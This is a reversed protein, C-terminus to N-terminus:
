FISRIFPLVAFRILRSELIRTVAKGQRDMDYGAIRGLIGAEHSVKLAKELEENKMNRFIRTALRMSRFDRGYSKKWKRQFTDLSVGILASEAAVKGAMKSVLGGLVVGGGTTPKVFGGADGIVMNHGRVTRRMPGSVVVRGYITRLIKAKNIRSFNANKELMRQLLEQPVGEYCALGIRVHDGRPVKWAFFGPAWEGTHLEVIDKDFDITELDMQVAPISKPIDFGLSKGIKAKTGEADILVKFGGSVDKPFSKGVEVKVGAAEARKLLEVDFKTRDIICAKDQETTVDYGRGSPSYIRVGRIWNTVFSSSPEILMDLGSKSVLGTCHDPKGVELDEEVVLVDAGAHAAETGAILGAPGAGVILVDPL